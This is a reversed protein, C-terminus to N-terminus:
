SQGSPSVHWLALYRCKCYFFRIEVEWGCNVRKAAMEEEEAHHNTSLCPVVDVFFPFSIVFQWSESWCNWEHPVRDCTVFRPFRFFHFVFFYLYAFAWLCIHWRLWISNSASAVMVVVYFSCVIDVKLESKTPAFPICRLQDMSHPPTQSLSSYLCAIQRPYSIFTTSM